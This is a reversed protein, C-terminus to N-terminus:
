EARARGLALPHRRPIDYVRGCPELAGSGDVADDHVLRRLAGRAVRDSVALCFRDCRLPLGFRDRDPLRDLCTRSEPRFHEVVHGALQDAALSFDTQESVARSPTRSSREGCSTVSTPTGPM